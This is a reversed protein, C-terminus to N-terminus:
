QDITGDANYWIFSMQDGEEYWEITYTGNPNIWLYPGHELGEKYFADIIEGGYIHM